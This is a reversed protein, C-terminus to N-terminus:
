FKIQFTRLEFPEFLLDINDSKESLALEGNELLDTEIIEQWERYASLNIETSRGRTEYLRLVVGEGSEALKVTDIKVSSDSTKFYSFKKEEPLEKVEHLILPSNLNHAQQLVDSNQLDGSHPYYAFTFDHQHQDAEKDTDQPSRLLTLDVINGKIYHGYKCDNLLAFGYDPQSLDAFRQGATEFKAAEWSTNNHTPRKLTGFQIECSADASQIQVEASVRLMKHVEQWDVHNEIRILRSDRHLSLKQTISTNGITLEQSLIVSNSTAREVRASIRKATEPVTERYFHNIDWAGWNNPEDEWLQLLNAKGSLIERQEVKDWLSIIAGDADLEVRLLENELLGIDAKLPLNEDPFKPAEEELQICSYGLPPVTVDLDIFGDVADRISSSIGDGIWYQGDTAAPIRVIEERTWPQTNIVIYKGTGATQTGFKTELQKLQIEQLLELNKRSLANADKYVWNISSGPLIDHFQNLLTNKWIEDIKEKPFEGTMFGLFEVDHLKQELRRNHKKMLAQTTYTGRHLELYLEGSWVPLKEKPIAAIKSFFDEAFSFKFRPVGELDQQRLGMEIHERSPGGGGDGIGYLNLFEDSIDNQAYRKESAILQAPLNALNYDNTPLFHTLIETGDIGKWIFTHHPFINTENWSIKQTMFYNIGCKKLIQPLAASYGFVDPLWLNDIEIGFEERFFRKGYLCQRVLSEGNPINMDPEVWMGGQVEWRKDAVAQKVKNYLVPYDQKIWEYLQPQSAGFKYDPYEELLKLATAFTRGGKRRTERVPWLWALDLHAHGISYATLSSTNATKALLDASIELCQEVGKGGTWRNCIENLGYLIKNRRPSNEELAEMLSVLVKLDLELRWIKRDVCVTEAQQLRYDNQGSGFLGNAGAEVLLDVEEGGDAEQFLPVFYKGSRLDWHIKNTLGLWPSGDKWVCGEGNLDILVGVERGAFGAPINGKFRFWACGWLEGWEEGISIPKFKSKLAKEYPIPESKHYIYEAQLPVSNSYKLKSIKESFRKIRQLYINKRQM